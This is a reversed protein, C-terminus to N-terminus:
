HGHRFFERFEKIIYLGFARANEDLARELYKRGVTVDVSAQKEQSRKGLNYINEHMYLAYDSAPANSPIFVYGKINHLTQSKKVLREHSEELFGEDVPSRKVSEDLLKDCVVTVIQEGKETVNRGAKICESIARNIDKQFAAM